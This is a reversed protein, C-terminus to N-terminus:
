KSMELMALDAGDDTYAVVRFQTVMKEVNPQSVVSLEINLGLEEVLSRLRKLEDQVSKIVDVGGLADYDPVEATYVLKHFQRKMLRSQDIVFGDYNTKVLAM